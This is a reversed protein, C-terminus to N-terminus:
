VQWVLSTTSQFVILNNIVNFFVQMMEWIVLDPPLHKLLANWYQAIQCEISFILLIDISFSLLLVQCFLMIQFM